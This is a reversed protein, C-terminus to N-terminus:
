TRDAKGAGFPLRAHPRSISWLSTEHQSPQIDSKRYSDKAVSYDREAEVPMQSAHEAFAQWYFASGYEEDKPTLSKKAIEITLHFEILAKPLDGSFALAEGYNQHAERIENLRTSPDPSREAIAVLEGCVVTASTLQGAANATRCTDAKPFYAQGVANDSKETSTPIGLSFPVSVIFRVATPKGDVDFPKYRWQREADMAAEKFMSPGGIAEVKTIAGLEDVDVHLLVSGQVHAAKAIPPYLPETHPLLHRIGEGEMVFGENAGQGLTPHRCLSLGAILSLFRNM